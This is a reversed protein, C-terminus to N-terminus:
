PNRCESRPVMGPINTWSCGNAVCSREDSYSSCSSTVNGCAQVSIDALVPTRISVDGDTQQVVVQYQLTAQEFPVSGNLLSTPNLTREYIGSGLPNMAVSEFQTSASASAFRYFLVVVRIEKPAAARASITVELPGCGARGITVLSTSVGEISVGSSPVSTETPTPTPPTTPSGIPLFTSTAITEVARPPVTETPPGAIILVTEAYASWTGAQDQARLLLPYTGPESIGCDRTLTVLANQTDPSQLISPVGDVVLEFSSIGNPSAGHGVIQCPNPPVFISNPLPADFWARVPAPQEAVDAVPSVPLSCGALLSGILLLALPFLRQKM